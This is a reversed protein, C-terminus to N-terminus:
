GYLTRRYGGSARNGNPRSIREVPNMEGINAWAEQCEQRYVKLWNYSDDSSFKELLYGYLCDLVVHEMGEWVPSEDLDNLLDYQRAPYRLYLNVAPDPTSSLMIQTRNRTRITYTTGSPLDALVRQILTIQTDSDVSEVNYTNLGIIVESGAFANDLWLTNVGTLTRSNKSASLSGATYDSVKRNVNGLAWAVPFGTDYGRIFSNDMDKNQIGEVEHPWRSLHMTKAYPVEPDLSYFKNWILYDQGAASTGLYPKSLTLSTGSSVSLIQYLEDERTLKLFRGAMASTWATGVGTVGRSGSTVTISGTIYNPITQLTITKWRWPWLYKNSFDKMYLNLGRLLVTKLSEGNEVTQDLKKGARGSVENLMQLVTIM